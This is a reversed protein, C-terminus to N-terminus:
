PGRKEFGPPQDIWIIQGDLGANVFAGRVDSQYIILAMNNGLVFLTRISDLKCVPAFLRKMISVMNKCIGGQVSALKRSRMMKSM